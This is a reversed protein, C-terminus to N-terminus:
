ERPQTGQNLSKLKHTDLGPHGGMVKWTREVEETKGPIAKLNKKQGKKKEEKSRRRRERRRGEEEKEEEEKGEEKKGFCFRPLFLDCVCHGHGHSTIHSQSYSRPSM